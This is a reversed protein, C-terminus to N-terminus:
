VGFHGYYVKAGRPIYIWRDEFQRLVRDRADILEQLLETYEGPSLRSGSLPVSTEHSQKKESM